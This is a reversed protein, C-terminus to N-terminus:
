VMMRYSTAQIAGVWRFKISVGDEAPSIRPMMADLRNGPNRRQPHM